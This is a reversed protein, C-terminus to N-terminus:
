KGSAQTWEELKKEVSAKVDASLGEMALARKCQAVALSYSKSAAYSEAIRMRLGAKQDATLNEWEIMKDYTNRAKEENKEAHYTEAIMVTTEFKHEPMIEAVAIAREYYSRAAQPMQKNGLYLNGAYINGLVRYNAHAEFMETLALWEALAEDVKGSAISATGIQLRAEGVSNPDKTFSLAAQYDKIAADYEKNRQRANGADLAERYTKYGLASAADPDPAAAMPPANTEQAWTAPLSVLLSMAIIPAIVDTTKM